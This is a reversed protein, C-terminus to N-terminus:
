KRNRYMYYLVIDAGVLLFNYLYLLIVCDLNYFLKYLLGFIYGIEVLWLFLISKGRVDKTKYTKAVQFPWSAGWCILMGAELLTKIM